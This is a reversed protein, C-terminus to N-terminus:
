KYVKEKCRSVDTVEVSHVPGNESLLATLAHRQGGM